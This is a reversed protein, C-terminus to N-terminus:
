DLPAVYRPLRTRACCCNKPDCDTCCQGSIPRAAPMPEETDSEPWGSSEDPIIVDDNISLIVWFDQSLFSDTLYAYPLSGYGQKGWGTGWSNRIFFRQTPDDYGCIVVAHGGLPPHERDSLSPMPIDGSHEVAPDQMSPFVLFGITLPFGTSILQKISYLNHDVMKVTVAKHDLANAFAAKTPQLLPGASYSHYQEECLGTTVLCQAASGIMSGEDRDQMGDALRAQYYLFLRSDGSKKVDYKASKRALFGYAATLSEAVCSNYTQNTVPGFGDRLDASVPLPQPDKVAGLLFGAFRQKANPDFRAGLRKAWVHPPAVGPASQSPYGAM